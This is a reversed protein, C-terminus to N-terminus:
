ATSDPLPVVENRSSRSLRGREVPARGAPKLFVSTSFFLVMFGPEQFIPQLLLITFIAPVLGAIWLAMDTAAIAYIILYGVAFVLGFVRISAILSIADSQFISFGSGDGFIINRARFAAQALYQREEFSGSGSDVKAQIGFYESSYIIQWSLLGVVAIILLAPIPKVGFRMLGIAAATYLAMPAGISSLCAASGAVCALQLPLPWGRRFAYAAAWSAYVPLIGPERFIGSMRPIPGLWTSVAPFIFTFPFAIDGAGDYTYNIRAITILYSPFGVLFLIATVVVSACSLIIAIAFIDFFRRAYHRDSMILAMALLFAILIGFGKFVGVSDPPGGPMYILSKVLLYHGLVLLLIIQLGAHREVVLGRRSEASITFLVVTAALLVGVVYLSYVEGFVSPRLFLVSLALIAILVHEALQLRTSNRNPM